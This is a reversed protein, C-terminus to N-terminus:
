DCRIREIAQIRIEAYHCLVGGFTRMEIVDVQPPQLRELSRVRPAGSADLLRLAEHRRFRDCIEEVVDQFALESGSADHAGMIGFLLFTHVRRHLGAPVFGGPAGAGLSAAEERARERTLAWGRIQGVGGGAEWRFLDLYKGLDASWRQYAHVRGAGAVASVESSIADGIERYRSEAM